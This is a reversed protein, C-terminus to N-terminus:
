TSETTNHEELPVQKHFDNPDEEGVTSMEMTSHSSELLMNYKYSIRRSRLYIVVAVIALIVFAIVGAVVAGAPFEIKASCNVTAGTTSMPGNCANGNKIYGKTQKGHACPSLVEQYDAATCVPCGVVSYWIFSAECGVEAGPLSILAPSGIGSVDCVFSITSQRGNDCGTDDGNTIQLTFGKSIESTPNPIFNVFTGFDTGVGENDVMCVSTPINNGLADSCIGSDLTGCVQLHFSNSAAETGTIPGFHSSAGNLSFTIM